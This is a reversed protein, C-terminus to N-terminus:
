SSANRPTSEPVAFVALLPYEAREASNRTVNAQCPRGIGKLNRPILPKLHHLRPSDSHELRNFLRLNNTKRGALFAAYELIAGLQFTDPVRGNQKREFHFRAVFYDWLM